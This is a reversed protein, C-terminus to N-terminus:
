GAGESTISNHQLHSGQGSHTSPGLAQKPDSGEKATNGNALDGSSEESKKGQIPDDNSDSKQYSSGSQKPSGGLTADGSRGLDASKPGINGLNPLHVPEITAKPRQLIVNKTVPPVSAKSFTTEKPGPDLTASPGPALPQTKADETPTPTPDAGFATARALAHPPDYATFVDDCYSFWPIKQKLQSPM